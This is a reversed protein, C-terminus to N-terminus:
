GKISVGRQEAWVRGLANQAEDSLERSAIRFLQTEEKRFHKRTFALTEALVRRVERDDCGSVVSDLGQRIIDHDIPGDAAPPLFAVIAPRLVTEEIEAHSVLTSQLMRVHLKLEDISGSDIGTEIRDLLPYIAGHEGLL